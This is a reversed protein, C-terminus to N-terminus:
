DRVSMTSRFREVLFKAAIGNMVGTIAGSLLMFPALLFIAENKIIIEYAGFLQGAYHAIAGLVSVGIISFVRPGFSKAIGMIAVATIGGSLSLIFAPSGLTGSLISGLFIRGLTIFAAEKFGYLFLAALTIINAFGFRFWAITIPLLAEATHIVTALALFLGIRSLRGIQDTM